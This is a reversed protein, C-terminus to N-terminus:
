KKNIQNVTCLVEGDSMKLSIIDNQSLQSVSDIPLDNKLVFSYGHQLVNIPNLSNIRDAINKINLKEINVKHDILSYMNRNLQTVFRKEDSILSKIESKSVTDALGDVAQVESFFKNKVTEEIKAFTDTVDKYLRNRDPVALEAAASPTPARMDSVFDCLTFDTEHGVASIIPIKSDYIARVLSEDNFCNLDEFSGGGRGIIIIDVNDLDNFLNVANTLQKSALEGQVLVPCLIIQALPYRRSIVNKIDEIVAGTPSTIVGINTPIEPLTLKHSEDFIGETQLRTKLQEYAVALAGAGDPQMSNVYVQYQGSAEYVSIRGSVIVKMGDTPCFRLKSANSSFMVAKVAAKNDKLSFYLHGSSYNNKLNSIEGSIFISSLNKDGDMLLKVYSNVQSVSLVSSSM